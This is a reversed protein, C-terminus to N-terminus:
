VKIINKYILLTTKNEKRQAKEDSTPSQVKEVSIIPLSFLECARWYGANVENKKKKKLWDDLESKDMRNRKTFLRSLPGPM